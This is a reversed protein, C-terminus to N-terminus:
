DTMDRLCDVQALAGTLEGRFLELPNDGDDLIGLLILDGGPEEVSLAINDVAFVRLNEGVTDRRLQTLIKLAQLLDAGVATETM